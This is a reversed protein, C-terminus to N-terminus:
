LPLSKLPNYLGRLMNPVKSFNGDNNEQPPHLPHKPPMPEIRGKSGTSLCRIHVLSEQSPFHKRLGM